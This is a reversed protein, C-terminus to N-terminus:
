PRRSCTETMPIKWREVVHLNKSHPTAYSDVVSLEHELLGITDIVLEGNEYRGVFEGFWSPKVNASHERNLHVRRM